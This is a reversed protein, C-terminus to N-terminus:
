SSSSTPHSEPLRLPPPMSSRRAVEGTRANSRHASEHPPCAAGAVGAEFLAVYAVSLEDLDASALANAAEAVDPAFAYDFVGLEEFVPLAAGAASVMETTPYSFGAGFFRYVGQRLRSLRELTV